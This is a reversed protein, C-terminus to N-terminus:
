EKVEHEFVPTKSADKCNVFSSRVRVLRYGGKCKQWRSHARRIHPRLHRGTPNHEEEYVYKVKNKKESLVYDSAIHYGVGNWSSNKSSHSSQISRLNKSSDIDPEKSGLYSIYTLIKEVIDKGEDLKIVSKDEYVDVAVTGASMDMDKRIPNIWLCWADCNILAENKNWYVFAGAIKNHMPEDSFDIYFSSYPLSELTKKTPLLTGASSIVKTIGKSFKFIQKYKLWEQFISYIIFYDVYVANEGGRDTLQMDKNVVSFNYTDRQFREDLLKMVCSPRLQFDGANFESSMYFDRIDEDEHYKTILPQYDLSHALEEVTDYYLWEMPKISSIQKNKKNQKELRRRMARNM